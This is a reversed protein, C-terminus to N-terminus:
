SLLLDTIVPTIHTLNRIRDLIKRKETGMVICPVPNRTHTKVSLDEINGHDSILLTTIRDPDTDALYGGLFEDFRELVDTAFQMDKSHGAHDTLWYEFLTFDHERAIAALHGGAEGPSVMPMDQYGMEPWRARTLDASIGRNARLDDAKLLPVGAFLCSMTTVTLRRTGSDTYDFFQRPFANAFVVRKGRGLLGTFINKERILPRLETTPYPGFHRKILRPANVGTFIATQGTGSQPLGAVGLTANVPGAVARRGSVRSHGRHLMAGDLLNRLHPLRAVFFPNRGPNRSGIGVGDLFLLVVGPSKMM